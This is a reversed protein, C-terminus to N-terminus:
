FLLYRIHRQNYLLSQNNNRRPIFCRGCRTDDPNDLQCLASNTGSYGENDLKQPLILRIDVAVNNNVDDRSMLSSSSFRYVPSVPVDSVGVM